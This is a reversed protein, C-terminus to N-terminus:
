DKEADRLARGLMEVSRTIEEMAPQMAVVMARGLGVFADNLRSLAMPLTPVFEMIVKREGCRGCTATGWRFDYRWPHGRWRCIPRLLIRLTVADAEV